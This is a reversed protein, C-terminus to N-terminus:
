VSLELGPVAEKKTAKNIGNDEEKNDNKNKDNMTTTRTEGGSIYTKGCEPCIATFVRVSSAVVKRDEREAKAANRTVHEQEHARVKAGAARPDVKTPSQFSVGGDNSGDQYKRNKCTQCEKVGELKKERVGATTNGKVDEQTRFDANVISQPNNAFKNGYDTFYPSAGIALSM